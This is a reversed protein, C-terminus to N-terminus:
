QRRRRGTLVLIGILLVMLPLLVVPLWFLLRAQLDTIMLPQAVDQKARVAVLDAEEALWSVASLFLDSNGQVNLYANNAFDSDGFVIFKGEPKVKDMDAPTPAGEEPADALKVTGVVAVPVPGVLDQEPNLEATGKAMNELDTEGWAQDSTEALPVVNIGEVKSEAVSVTRALPFFSAMNFNATVPHPTYTAVLPMLYDAGFLRSMKDVIINNGVQVNFKTLWAATEPATQPDILILAKGGEHLYKGIAELEAPLPDKKPGAVVLVAADRPIGSEQMLLLPKVAYNQDELNTNVESYGDQGIDTLDREGHGTLFYITKKGTRTLRVLANTLTEENLTSLKENQDGVQVVVTDYRTIGAAKARAPNRDPDVMEYKFKPSAHAYQDLLDRAQVKTSGEQYFAEAKIDLALGELIKMTQPALSYRKQATMDYRTSHKNTLVAVFILIGLVLVVALASGAGYKTSRSTGFRKLEALNFVLYILLAAAALAGPIVYFGKYMPALAYGFGAALLLALGAFGVYRSIKKM